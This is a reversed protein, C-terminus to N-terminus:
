TVLSTRGDGSLSSRVCYIREQLSVSWGKPYWRHLVKARCLVRYGLSGCSCKNKEKTMALGSKDPRPLGM